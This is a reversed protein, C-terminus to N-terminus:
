PLGSLDYYGQETIVGAGSFGVDVTVDFSSFCLTITSAGGRGMM